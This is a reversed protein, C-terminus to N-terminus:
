RKAPRAEFKNIRSIVLSVSFVSIRPQFKKREKFYWYTNGEKDIGFYTLEPVDFDFAIFNNDSM